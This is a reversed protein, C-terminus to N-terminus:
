ETLYPKVLDDIKTNISNSNVLNSIFKINSVEKPIDKSEIKPVEISNFLKFSEQALQYDFKIENIKDIDTGLVSYVLLHLKEKQKPYNNLRNNIRELIEELSIGGANINVLISAIIIETNNVSNLQSSSFHHTRIETGSSKVEIRLKGFSFDFKEEPISHWGIILKEPHKSQEIVFLEAWLGQLSKKSVEKLSKFLEIFKEVVFKIKANSPTRGLSEVLIQSTSLFIDKIDSDQGTYSVVTFNKQFTKNDLEIECKLNHSVKINFLSQNPIFFDKDQENIFILLSPNDLFNKGIRHNEYGEIAKASYSYINQGKPLPLNNYIEKLKIM